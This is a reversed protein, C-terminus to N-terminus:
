RSHATTIIGGGSGSATNNTVAVNTLTTDGANDLAAAMRATERPYDDAGVDDGDRRQDHVGHQRQQRRDVAPECGGRHDHHPDHDNCVHATGGTLLINRRPTSFNTGGAGSGDGFVIADAGAVNALTVAERLSTLGDGANVV